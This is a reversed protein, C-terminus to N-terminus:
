QRMGRRMERREWEDLMEPMVPEGEAQWGIVFRPSQTDRANKVYALLLVWGQELYLNLERISAAEAALKTDEIKIAM